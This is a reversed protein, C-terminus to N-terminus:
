IFISSRSPNSSRGDAQCPLTTCDEAGPVKAGRVGACPSEHVEIENVPHNGPNTEEKEQSRHRRLISEREFFRQDHQLVTEGLELPNGIGIKGDAVLDACRPEFQVAQPPLDELLQIGRRNHLHGPMGVTRMGAIVQFQDEVLEHLQM